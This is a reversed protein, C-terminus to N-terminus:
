GNSYGPCNCYQNSNTVFKGLFIITFPTIFINGIMGLTKEIFSIDNPSVDHIM